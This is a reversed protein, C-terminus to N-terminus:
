KARFFAQYIAAGMIMIALGTWIIIWLEVPLNTVQAMAYADNRVEGISATRSNWLSWVDNVANFGVIFALVNLAFITISRPMYVGLWLIVAGSVLGVILGINNRVAVMALLAAVGSALRLGTAREKWRDALLWLILAAGVGVLLGARGERTFLVACGIFFVALPTTVWEINKVRNAAIVLVAGFIAAGLYGLPLIALLSGGRTTALGSGNPNIVFQLFEGGTAVAALGHGTEHVFTVLLRFPYLLTAMETSQWLFFVLLFAVFALLFTNRREPNQVLATFM